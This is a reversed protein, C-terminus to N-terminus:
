RTWRGRDHGHGDAGPRVRAAASARRAGPWRDVRHGGTSRPGPRRDARRAADRAVRLRGPRAAHDRRGRGRDAVPGDVNGLPAPPPGASPGARRDLDSRAQRHGRHGHNLDGTRDSGGITDGGTRRAYAGVGRVHHASLRRNVSPSDLVHRTDRGPGRQADTRATLPRRTSPRWSRAACSGVWRRSCVRILLLRDMPRFRSATSSRRGMSSSRFRAVRAAPSSPSRSRGTVGPQSKLRWVSPKGSIGEVSATASRSGPSEKPWLPMGGPVHDARGHSTARPRCGWM